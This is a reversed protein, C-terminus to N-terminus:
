FIRKLLPIQKVIMAIGFSFILALPMLALFKLLLMVKWNIFLISIVVLVPPHLVYVAYASDSLKKTFNNQTNRRAKFIGFLSVMIAIGTVQEWVSFIFSQITVGGLFLQIGNENVRGILFLLPFVIVVLVLSFWMWNKAQVYSVFNDSEYKAAIIGLVFLFIYQPFHGLVFPFLHYGKFLPYIIRVMFTMVGLLIATILIYTPKIKPIPKNKKIRLGPFVLYAILYLVTFYILALVFWMVGFGFAHGSKWLEGFSVGASEPHNIPLVIITTVVNIFYYFLLLPIGLRILRDKVFRFLGKKQFSRHTFYAAIFFFMGMFFSQSTANLVTLPLVTAFGAGKEIYIWGGPGGYSCALHVIVVLATLLIRLNEIYALRPSKSNHEKEREL